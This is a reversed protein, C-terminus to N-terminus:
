TTLQARLTAIQSQIQALAQASTLGAYPSGAAFVNTANTVAERVMRDTQADELAAIQKFIYVNTALPTTTWTQLWTGDGQQVFTCGEVWLSPDTPAAVLTAPSLGLTAANDVTVTVLGNPTNITGNEQFYNGNSDCWNSM